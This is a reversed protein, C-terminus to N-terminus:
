SKVPKSPVGADSMTVTWTDGGGVFAVSTVVAPSATSNSVACNFAANTIDGSTVAQFNAATIEAADGGILAISCAKAANVAEAKAASSKARNQAKGLEPIGVASLVGIIAVVIMLEILTFGNQKKAKKLSALKTILTNNM